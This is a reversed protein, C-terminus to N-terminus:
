CGRLLPLQVAVSSTAPTHFINRDRARGPSGTIQQLTHTSLSGVNAGTTPNVNTQGAAGAGSGEGGNNNSNNDNGNQQYQGGGGIGVSNQLKILAATSGNNRIIKTSNASANGIGLSISIGSVITQTVSGTTNNPVSSTTAAAATLPISPPSVAATTPVVNHQQGQGPNGSVNSIYNNTTTVNNGM